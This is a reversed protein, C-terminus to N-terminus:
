LTVNTAFRTFEYDEIEHRSPEGRANYLIIFPPEDPKQWVARGQKSIGIQRAGDAPSASCVSWGLVGLAEIAADGPNMAEVTFRENGDHESVISYSNM